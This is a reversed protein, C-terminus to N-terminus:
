KAKAANMKIKIGKWKLYKRQKMQRVRKELNQQEQL